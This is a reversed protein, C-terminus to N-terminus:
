DDLLIFPYKMQLRKISGSGKALSINPHFTRTYIGSFLHFGIRYQRLRITM